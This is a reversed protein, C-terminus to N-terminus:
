PRYSCARYGVTYTVRYGAREAVFVMGSEERAGPAGPAIGGATGTDGDGNLDLVRAAKSANRNPLTTAVRERVRM